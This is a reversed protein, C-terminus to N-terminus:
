YTPPDNIVYEVIWAPVETFRRWIDNFEVATKQKKVVGKTELWM